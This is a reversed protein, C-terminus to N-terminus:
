EDVRGIKKKQLRHALSASAHSSPSDFRYSLTWVQSWILSNRCGPAPVTSDLCFANEGKLELRSVYLGPTDARIVTNMVM